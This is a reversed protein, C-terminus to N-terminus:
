TNFRVQINSGTKLGKKIRAAQKERFYLAKYKDYVMLIETWSMRSLSRGQISYSLQDKSAKGEIVAELADLVKKVHSQEDNGTIVATTM